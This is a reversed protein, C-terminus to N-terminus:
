DGGGDGGDGSDGGNGETDRSRKRPRRAERASGAERRKRHASRHQQVDIGTKIAILLLLAPLATAAGAELMFIAGILIAVHLAMIRKYPDFMIDEADRERDEGGIFHHYLTSVGHSIVFALLPLGLLEPAEQQVWALNASLLHLPILFPFGDADDLDVTDQGDLSTLDIIFMGHGGCFFSYHFSFFLAPFLARLRGAHLMRVLTWGGVVLNELWYLLLLDRADWGFFLVGALPALNALILATLPIRDLPDASAPTRMM